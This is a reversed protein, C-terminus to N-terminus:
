LFLDISVNFRSALAKAASKSIGRKGRLVESTTGKSGFIEYLDKPRLGRARMLERVVADPSAKRTSYHDEEFKEILVLVLSMLEREEPSLSDKQQLGRVIELLRENEEGTHPVQPYAESLLHRYCGLDFARVAM